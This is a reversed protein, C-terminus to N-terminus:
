LAGLPRNAFFDLNELRRLKIERREAWGSPVAAPRRRRSPASAFATSSASGDRSRPTDNITGSALAEANGRVDHVTQAGNGHVDERHHGGDGDEAARPPTRRRLRTEGDRMDGRTEALM